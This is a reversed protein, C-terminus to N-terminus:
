RRFEGGSEWRWGRDREYFNWLRRFADPDVAERESLLREGKWELSDGILHMGRSGTIHFAAKRRAGNQVVVFEQLTIIPGINKKRFLRRLWRFM